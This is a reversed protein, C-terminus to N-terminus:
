PMEEFRVAEEYALLAMSEEMPHHAAESILRMDYATVDGRAWARRIETGIAEQLAEFPEESYGIGYLRGMLDVLFQTLTSRDALRATM